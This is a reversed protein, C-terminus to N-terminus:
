FSLTQMSPIIFNSFVINVSTSNNIRSRQEYIMRLFLKAPVDWILQYSFIYMCIIFGEFSPPSTQRKRKILDAQIKKLKKNLKPQTLTVKLLKDYKPSLTPGGFNSWKSNHFSIPSCRQHLAKLMVFSFKM